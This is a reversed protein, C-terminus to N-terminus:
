AAPVGGAPPIGLARAVVAANVTTTRSSSTSPLSGRPDYRRRAADRGRRLMIGYRPASRGRLRPFRTPRLHLGPVARCGTGARDFRASPQYTRHHRGSRRVAAPSREAGSGLGTARSTCSAARLWLGAAVFPTAGAPRTALRAPPLGASPDTTARPVEAAGRTGRFPVPKPSRVRGPSDSRPLAARGRASAGPRREGGTGAAAARTLRWMGMPPSLAEIHEVHEYGERFALGARGGRTWMTRCISRVAKAGAACKGYLPSRPPTRISRCIRARPGGASAPRGLESAIRARWARRGDRAPPRPLGPVGGRRRGAVRGSPPPSTRPSVRRAGGAVHAARRAPEGPRDGPFVRRVMLWALRAELTAAVAGM